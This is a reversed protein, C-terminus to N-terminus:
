ILMFSTCVQEKKMTEVELRLREGAKDFIKGIERRLEENELLVGTTKAIDETRGVGSASAMEESSSEIDIVAQQIASSIFEEMSLSPKIDQTLIEETVDATTLPPAGDSNDDSSLVTGIGDADNLVFTVSPADAAALLDVAEDLATGLSTVENEGTLNIYTKSADVDDDAESDGGVELDGLIDGYVGDEGGLSSLEAQMEMFLKASEEVSLSDAFAGISGDTSSLVPRLDDFDDATLSDLAAFADAMGERRDNSLPDDVNDDGTENGDDKASICSGSLHCSRRRGIRQRRQKSKSQVEVRLFLKKTATTPRVGVFATVTVLSSSFWFTVLLVCFHMSLSKATMRKTRTRYSGDGDGMGMMM